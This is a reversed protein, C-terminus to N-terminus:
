FVKADKKSLLFVEKKIKATSKYTAANMYQAVKRETTTKDDINFIYVEDGIWNFYYVAKAGLKLKWNQLREYKDVELFLDDYEKCKLSRNKIEILYLNNNNDYFKLDYALTKKPPEEYHFGRKTLLAVTKDRGPKDLKEIANM